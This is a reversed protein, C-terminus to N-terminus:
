GRLPGGSHAANLIQMLRQHIHDVKDELWGEVTLSWPKEQNGERKWEADTLRSLLEANVAATNSFSKLALGIPRDYHLRQAYRDEDWHQLVPMNEALMRRLTLAEFMEADALHHILQRATWDRSAPRMIEALHHIIERASWGPHAPQRDLDEEPLTEIAVAIAEAGDRYRQILQKRRAEDMEAIRSADAAPWLESASADQPVGV